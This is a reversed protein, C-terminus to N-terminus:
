MPLYQLLDDSCSMESIGM